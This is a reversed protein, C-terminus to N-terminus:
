EKEEKQNIEQRFNDIGYFKNIEETQEPTELWPRAFFDINDM